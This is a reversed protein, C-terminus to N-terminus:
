IDDKAILGFRRMLLSANPTKCIGERLKYDFLLDEGDVKSEFYAARFNPNNDAMHAIDVDHTAIIGWAEMHEIQHLFGRTGEQKDNSNTGRLIEDLLFFSYRESNIRDLLSRLRLVEAQFYSTEAGLDDQPNMSSLLQFPYVRFKEACVVTGMQALLLNIGLTRLFTSKGSMNSGTLIIYKPGQYHLDNSVRNQASILPHGLAQAELVPEKEISAPIFEPHNAQYNAISLYAEFRYLGKLWAELESSHKQHWIELGRLRWLHYHFLGNFVVLAVANASQDLSSLLESLKKLKGGATGELHHMKFFRGAYESEFPEQELRDILRTFSAMLESIQGLRLHQKRLVKSRSGFLVLNFSLAYMFYQFGIASPSIAFSILAYWVALIGGLMPLLYFKPFATFKEDAWLKFQQLVGAQDEVLAGQARYELAWAAKQELEKFFAQRSQWDQFPPDLLEDALAQAGMQTFSRNLYQHLSKKGIVDIERAFPHKPDVKFDFPEAYPEGALAALEKACTEVLATYYNAQERANLHLRVLVLFLSMGPLWAWLWADDGEEQMAWYSIGILSLIVILRLWSFLRSRKRFFTKQSEAKAQHSSLFAKRGEM